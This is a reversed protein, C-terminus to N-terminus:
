NEVIGAIKRYATKFDSAEFLASNVALFDAGALAISKANEFNVGGDVEVKLNPSLRKAQRLKDLIQIQFKQGSFGPEVALLVLFDIKGTLHSVSAIQTKPNVSLGAQKHNERVYYLAEPVGKSEFPVVIRSVSSNGILRSIYTQSHDVMLQIELKSVSPYKNIVTEDVTKNNAFKGDIVDIQILDCVEEAGRLNDKYVQESNTLISPIIKPM